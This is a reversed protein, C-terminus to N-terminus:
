EGFYVEGSYFDLVGPPHVSLPASTKFFEGVSVLEADEAGEEFNNNKGLVYDSLPIYTGGDHFLSDLTNLRRAIAKTDGVRSYHYIRCVEPPVRVTPIDRTFAAFMGDGLVRFESLNGMRGISFTWTKNVTKLDGWFYTRQLEMNFKGLKPKLREVEAPNVVEDAQVYLVHEFGSNAAEHACMNARHALDVGNTVSWDWATPLVVVREGFSLLRTLTDDRNEAETNVFVKDCCGLLNQICVEFPYGLEIGNAVLTIGALM